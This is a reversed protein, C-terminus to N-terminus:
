GTLRNSLLDSLANLQLSLCHLLTLSWIMAIIQNILRKNSKTESKVIRQNTTKLVFKQIISLSLSDACRCPISMSM